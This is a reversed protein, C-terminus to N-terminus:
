RKKRLFVFSVVLAFASFLGYEMGLRNKKESDEVTEVKVVDASHFSEPEDGGAHCNWCGENTTDTCTDPNIDGAGGWVERITADEQLHCFRCDSTDPMKEVPANWMYPHGDDLKKTQNENFAFYGGASENFTFMVGHCTGEGTQTNLGFCSSMGTGNLADSQDTVDVNTSGTYHSFIKPIHEDIDARIDVYSRNFPGRGGELHCDECINMLDRSVVMKMLDKHCAVCSEDSNPMGTDNLNDGEWDFDRHVYVPDASSVLASSVILILISLIMILYTKRMLGALKCFM